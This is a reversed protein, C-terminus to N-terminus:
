SCHYFNSASVFKYKSAKDHRYFYHPSSVGVGSTRCPLTVAINGRLELLMGLDGYGTLGKKPHTVLFSFSDEIKM